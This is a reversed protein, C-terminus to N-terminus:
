NKLRLKDGVWKLEIKEKRKGKNIIDLATDVDSLNIIVKVMEHLTMCKMMEIKEM